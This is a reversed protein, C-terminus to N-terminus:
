SAALAQEIDRLVDGMDELGVSLRVMGPLIGVAERDKDSLKSHTTSAPHTAITRTDGLNATHSILKLADLFSRGKDIGGKLIFTVIGGGSRMQKKALSYAPHSPLFPYIVKEIAANKELSQAVYLANASHREMRLELTELSKSFLWANFPSLAPGTHRSFFKLEKMLEEKALIIGGIARGQGDIYKSASHVVLGAGFDAPKQLAPTCFCNDVNLIVNRKQCLSGIGELDVIDLSPNSPTELFFMRTNPKFSEEWQAQAAIDVYDHEIGWRSFIQGLIQHTSGFVSRSCLVHDGSKLFAAMSAFVAAMGSACAVGGDMHELRAMKAIFEDTNPNSFRSYINGQKEDAFLSRAEEASDFVFSSTMFIPVSHEREATHPMQGRIGITADNFEEM